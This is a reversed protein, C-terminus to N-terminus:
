RFISSTCIQGGGLSRDNPREFNPTISLFIIKAKYGVLLNARNIQVGEPFFLKTFKGGGWYNINGYRYGLSTVRKNDILTPIVIEEQEKGLDTLGGITIKYYNESYLFLDTELSATGCGTVLLVMITVVIVLIVLKFINKKM